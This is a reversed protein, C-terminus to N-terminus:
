EKAEQFFERDQTKFLRIVNKIEMLSDGVLYEEEGIKSRYLARPKEGSFARAIAQQMYDSHYKWSVEPKYKKARKCSFPTGFWTTM